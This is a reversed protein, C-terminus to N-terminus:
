RPIWRRRGNAAALKLAAEVVEAGSTGFWVYDLGRPAVEALRTAAVALPGNILVRSSVPHRALQEQVAAVVAPHRHGLLFVCYGACDLYRAGHEDVIFNADSDVEMSSHMLEFLRAMGVNVHQRYAAVAEARDVM